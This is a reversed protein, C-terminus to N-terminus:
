LYVGQGVGPVSWWEHHRGLRQEALAVVVFHVHPGATDEVELHNSAAVDKWALIEGIESVIDLFSFPTEGFVNFEWNLAEVEEVASQLVFWFFSQVPLFEHDMFVQGGSVVLKDGQLYDGIRLCPLQHRNRM